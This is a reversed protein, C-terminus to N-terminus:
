AIKEFHASNQEINEVNQQVNQCITAGISATDAGNKAFFVSM